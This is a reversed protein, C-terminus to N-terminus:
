STTRATSQLREPDKVTIRGRTQRIYGKTAFDSLIKSTAERTAGLLGALQEHTIRIAGGHGLRASLANTPASQALTLLTKATRAALPRLALDTLREELHAVQDGLLKAIRLAIRPDGILHREVDEVTLQCIVSDEIAEAYNEYMRQGVLLMEGFVAGPELIALTLTKGDEAVRFVRVRGSRLVFLASVPESQSFVLEGPGFRREPVMLHMAEVEAPSLDAFLDVEDLCTFGETTSNM